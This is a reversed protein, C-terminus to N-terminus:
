LGHTDLYYQITDHIVNRPALNWEMANEAMDALECLMDYSVEDMEFDDALVTKIDEKLYRRKVRRYITEEDAFPANQLDKIVNELVQSKGEYYQRMTPDTDSSHALERCNQEDDIYKKLLLSTNRYKTM